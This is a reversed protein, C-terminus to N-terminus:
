GTITGTPRLLVTYKTLASRAPTRSYKAIIVECSFTKGTAFTVTLTRTAGIANFIADPGTTATDNYLGGLTVDAGKSVGVALNKMWTDGFATSEETLAEVDLGNITDIYPTMTQPNGSGDDFAVIVENSGHPGVAM